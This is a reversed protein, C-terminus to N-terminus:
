GSIPVFKKPFGIVDFDWLIPAIFYAILLIILISILNLWFGKKIMDMITLHGSGFAVANPPTAVPLMFACSAALTAPILLIFPHIDLSQAMAALVPLLMATTAVNSTIETLFNILVIILLLFLVLPIGKFLNVQTGIWLALGSSKFAAAIALGGGFLFLIGWPLKATADWDLIKQKKDKTPLLFLVLAATMAIITDNIYPIFKQLLFSRFIWSLAAVIFVILVVKEEYKITGLAKLQLSITKTTHSTNFSKPINTTKTLYYWCILIMIVSVPLGVLLWDMFSIEIHYMEKIIGVLILNPPTGILTAIGGISASYAIGLMLNKNFSAEKPNTKIESGTNFQKTVAIGIPLMMVATATNSIWMSLFVTSLMFGLLIKKPNSGIKQIIHLAIRKHLNWKEIALALLFGGLFLFIYYHGYASTTSKIDLAGTIPFLIIPLLSTAAIPIAETIWWIAIWLTSALVANGEKTLGNPHFFFLIFLFVLPGLIKGFVRFHENM